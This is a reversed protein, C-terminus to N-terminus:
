REVKTMRESLASVRFRDGGGKCYKEVSKKRNIMLRRKGRIEGTKEWMFGLLKELALARRM